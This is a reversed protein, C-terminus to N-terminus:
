IIVEQHIICDNFVKGGGIVFIRGTENEKCWDLAKFMSTFTKVTDTEEIKDKNKQTLIINMRKQFPRKDEPISLWTNYGMILINTSGEPYEKTTIKYFNRLDDKSSILLKNDIGILNNQNVSVVINLRLM